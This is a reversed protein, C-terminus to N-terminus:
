KSFMRKVNARDDLDRAGRAKAAARGPGNGPKVPGVVTWTSPEVVAAAKGALTAGEAVLGYATRAFGLAGTYDHAAFAMQAMNLQSNAAAKKGGPDGSYTAALINAIKAYGATHHRASNDRDFQSFDWNLDIYSMMSNSEDGLWGFFTPGSPEFDLGSAPDLGDHPHSMSQHHGYEHIMTTTLGYGNAVADPYVFSFVGSQTGNLWNDDAFGLLGPSKPKQGISWNVLGAEYAPTGDLFSTHNRAAVLFMNVFGGFAAYGPDLDNYCVKDAVFQKYCRNWDGNMAIDQYDATLTSEFGSPLEKVNTLFLDPTVYDESGNVQNWGEVTNVDLNVQGPVRNATFYPPYLPSATVLLDLGVYRIVKGLDTTLAASGFGPHDATLTTGTYEWINPIRYDPAGDGDIDANTVDYSGGWSEPGASLDYFWVRRPPGDYPNQPDSPATGGWAVFKRSDRNLGFNYNTDPDPENTKTFVHFKFDGRDKWNVFLITPKTVDVGAPPNQIIWKEVSPGDIWNNQGVDLKGNQANYDDQFATRPKPTAISSLYGFFSNEWATSTYSPVYNYTYTIGLAAEGDLGYLLKYRTKPSASAPLGAKVANWDPDTGGFTGVFVVNVDVTEDLATLGGPNLGASATTAAAAVALAAVIAALVLRRM